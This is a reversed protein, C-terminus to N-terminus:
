TGRDAAEAAAIATASEDENETDSTKKWWREFKQCQSHSEEDQDEAISECWKEEWNDNM